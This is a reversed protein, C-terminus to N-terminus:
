KEKLLIDKAEQDQYKNILKNLRNKLNVIATQYKKEGIANKMETPDKKLDYFEWTTTANYFRILKYQPTRIGFHPSV